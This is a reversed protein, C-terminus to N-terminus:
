SNGTCSSVLDFNYLEAREAVNKLWILLSYNYSISEIFNTDRRLKELVKVHLSEVWYATLVIFM